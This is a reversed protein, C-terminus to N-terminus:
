GLGMRSELWGLELKIPHEIYPDPDSLVQEIHQRSIKWEVDPRAQDHAVIGFAGNRYAITFYGQAAGGKGYIAVGVKRTGLLREGGSVIQKYPFRHRNQNIALNVVSLYQGFLEGMDSQPESM